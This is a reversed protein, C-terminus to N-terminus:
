PAPFHHTHHAQPRELGHHANSCREGRVILLHSLSIAAPVSRIPGAAVSDFSDRWYNTSVRPPWVEASFGELVAELM